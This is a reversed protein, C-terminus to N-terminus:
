DKDRKSLGSVVDDIRILMCAAEFSSKITQVKVAYPDYVPIKTVDVVSGTKGDVGMLFKNQAHEARLETLAKLPMAGCNELLTRPIIEFAKAVDEFPRQQVGSIKKAELRLEQGLAMEIAGGGPLVRADLVLARVVNMADDLNRSMENLVDKSGGRLLITCAKPDKCKVFFSWYEDGIKKVEFLGCGKGVDEEKLDAPENVITGGCARSLRNNDTKKLRRLVSIGAKALFHQALDSVGKETVVVNPKWKIIDNCMKEVTEEEAKLLAEFDEEKTIEVNTASEGKRYELPCDLLIIRPKEIKRKMKAYLIDKELAIGDLVESDTFMGGPIKEVRIYRKIDIEKKKADNVVTIRAVADLAMQPIIDGFRAVFKTGLSSRVLNMMQDKNNVDLPTALKELVELSKNLAKMYAGVINRPHMNRQLWPEALSLLEGTLIVVSTTGDGVEEDQTRSLEIVSKAAPHAVDIERLIANGDSTMVIGGMPDLLMKLMSRPGLTTRVIGAVAKAAEINALQAKRGHDRKLNDSNWILRQM